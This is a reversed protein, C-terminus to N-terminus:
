RAPRSNEASRIQDDLDTPDLDAQQFSADLPLRLSLDSGRCIDVRGHELVFDLVHGGATLADDIFHVHGGPVGIGREYLPTRFGAVTGDVREFTVVAEDKVAESLRPYPKQQRRVTRTTVSEFRGTVRVAFLYNQSDEHEIIQAVVDSRLTRATVDFGATPEFPMVVAFPTLDDSSAPEATGDARLRYCVGDLVLMEGDLANFTGLGFDGRELLEGVSLDGDYVGDLLASMLSTQFVTRRQSDV